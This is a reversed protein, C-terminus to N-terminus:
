SKVSDCGLGAAYGKLRDATIPDADPFAALARIFRCAPAGGVDCRTTGWQPAPIRVQITDGGESMRQECTFGKATKSLAAYGEQSVYLRSVQKTAQWEAGADPNAAPMADHTGIWVRNGTTDWGNAKVQIYAGPGDPMMFETAVLNPWADPLCQFGNAMAKVADGNRRDTDDAFVDYLNHLVGCIETGATMCGSRRQSTVTSIALEDDWGHGIDRTTYNKGNPASECTAENYSSLFARQYQYDSLVLRTVSPDDPQPPLNATTGLWLSAKAMNPSPDHRLETWGSPKAADSARSPMIPHALFRVLDDLPNYRGPIDDPKAEVLAAAYARATDGQIFCVSTRHGDVITTVTLDTNFDIVRDECKLGQTLGLINLYQDDSLEVPHAFYWHFPYAWPDFSDPGEPFQPQPPLNPETGLWLTPPPKEQNGQHYVEIYTDHDQARTSLTVTPKAARGQLFNLLDQTPVTGSAVLGGAVVVVVLALLAVMKFFKM